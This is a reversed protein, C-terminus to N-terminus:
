GDEIARAPPNTGDLLSAAAPAFLGAEDPAALPVGLPL